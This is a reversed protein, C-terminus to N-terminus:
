SYYPGQGAQYSICYEPYAQFNDYVCVMRGDSTGDSQTSSHCGRQPRRQNVGGSGAIGEVVRCYLMRRTGNDCPPLLHPAPTVVHAHRGRKRKGVGGRHPLMPGMAGYPFSAYGRGFDEASHAPRSAYDDSYKSRTAFYVGAGLAGNLNSVRVDFGDHIITSVVSPSAGHFFYNENLFACQYEAQKLTEDSVDQAARLDHAIEMRRTWFKRWLNVNEIREVKVVSARSMGSQEFISLIKGVEQLALSLCSPPTGDGPALSCRVDSQRDLVVAEVHMASINMEKSAHWYSPMPAVTAEHLRKLRELERVLAHNQAKLSPKFSEAAEKGTLVEVGDQPCSQLQLVNANRPKTEGVVEVAAVGDTDDGERYEPSLTIDIPASSPVRPEKKPAEPTTDTLDVVVSSM